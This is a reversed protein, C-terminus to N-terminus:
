NLVGRGTMARAYLLLAVAAAIIVFTFGLSVPDGMVEMADDLVYNQFMSVVAGTLSAAFAWVALKNRRLLLIAGLLEGWVGVAWFAVTWAPLGYFFELQEPTFNGMYAENRTQTMLYRFYVERTAEYESAPVYM